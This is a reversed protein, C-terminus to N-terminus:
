LYKSELNPIEIFRVLNPLFVHEINPNGSYSSSLQKKKNSCVYVLEDIILYLDIEMSFPSALLDINDFVQAM